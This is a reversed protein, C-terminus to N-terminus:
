LEAMRANVVCVKCNGCASYGLLVDEYDCELGLKSIADVVALIKPLANRMEAILQMDEFGPAYQDNPTNDMVTSSGATVSTWYEGNNFGWPASTAKAELEKLRELTGM